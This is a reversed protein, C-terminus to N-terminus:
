VTWTQSRFKVFSKTAPRFKRAGDLTLRHTGLLSCVTRFRPVNNRRVRPAGAGGPRGPPRPCWRHQLAPTPPPPRPPSTPTSDPAASAASWRCARSRVQSRLAMHAPSRPGPSGIPLARSLQRMSVPQPERERTRLLPRHLCYPDTLFRIAAIYQQLVTEFVM